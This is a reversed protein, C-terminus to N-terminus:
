FVMRPSFHGALASSKRRVRRRRKRRNGDTGFLSKPSVRRRRNIKDGTGKREKREQKKQAEPTQKRSRREVGPIQDDKRKGFLSTRSVPRRGRLKGGPRKNGTRIQPRQPEVTQKSHPRLRGEVEPAEDDDRSHPRSRREVEPEEDDDEWLMYRTTLPFDTTYDQSGPDARVGADKRQKDTYVVNPKLNVRLRRAIPKSKKCFEELRNPLYRIDMGLHIGSNPDAIAQDLKRSFDQDYFVYWRDRDLRNRWGNWKGDGGKSVGPGEFIVFKGRVHRNYLGNKVENVKYLTNDEIGENGTHQLCFAYISQEKLLRFLEDVQEDKLKVAMLRDFGDSKCSEVNSAPLTKLDWLIAKRTRFRSQITEAADNAIEKLNTPSEKCYFNLLKPLNRIDMGLTIKSNPDDLARDIKQNVHWDDFFYWKDRDVDNRWGNWPDPVNPGEFVLYVTGRQKRYNTIKYLRNDEINAAMFGRQHNTCFAYLSETKARAGIKVMQDNTLKKAELYDFGEPECNEVSKKSGRDIEEPDWLLLAKHQRYVDQITKASKETLKKRGRALAEQQKQTKNELAEQHKRRKDERHKKYQRQITSASKRKNEEKRRSSRGRYVKQIRTAEDFLSPSKECYANLRAPLDQIEMGLEIRSDENRIAQDLKLNVKPDDFFYWRDRDVNNREGNWTTPVNPGKFILYVTGTLSTRYKTIKYLRNDEINAAALGQQHYTCFAYLSERQARQGIKVMQDDALRKAELYDFGEPKCNEVFKKSGRDIQKPDWLLLAKHQRYRRQITKASKETLKQRERALAEQQKRKRDAEKKRSSRGRHVKQIRTAKDFLSPSKGCYANLRAPLDQIEMGLVIRSGANRIAQDLKLNVKPDDFFYWKDRDVNNREGNWPDPVNPGEFVLYVTGRQKHYNTIKYLRNDEINASALGRKHDTCFAYLSERQARKGIKVMQDNTLRKAEIFDFGDPKCKKVDRKPNTSPDKWLLKFNQKARAQIREAAIRRQDHYGLQDEFIPYWVRGQNEMCLQRQFKVFWGIDMGLEVVPDTLRDEGFGFNRLERVTYLGYDIIFDFTEKNVERMLQQSKQRIFQEYLSNEGHRDNRNKGIMFNRLIYMDHSNVPEIMEDYKKKQDFTKEVIYEALKVKRPYYADQLLDTNVRVVKVAYQRLQELSKGKINKAVVQRDSSDLNDKILEVLNKEVEQDAEAFNLQEGEVQQATEELPKVKMQELQGQYVIRQLSNGNTSLVLRSEIAVHTGRLQEETFYYMYLCASAAQDWSLYGDWRNLHNRQLFNKHYYMDKRGDGMNAVPTGINLTIGRRNAEKIKFLRWNANFVNAKEFTCGFVFLWKKFEDYAKAYADFSDLKVATLKCNKGQPVKQVFAGSQNGTRIEADFSETPSADFVVDENFGFVDEPTNPCKNHQGGSQM